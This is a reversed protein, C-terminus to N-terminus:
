LVTCDCAPSHLLVREGEISSVASAYCRRAGEVDGRMRKIDGLNCSARSTLLVTSRDTTALTNSSRLCWEFCQSAQQLNFQPQQTHPHPAIVEFMLLLLLLLLLVDVMLLLMMMMMMM